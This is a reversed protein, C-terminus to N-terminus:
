EMMQETPAFVVDIKSEGVNETISQIAFRGDPARHAQIRELCMAYDDGEQCEVTMWMRVLAM